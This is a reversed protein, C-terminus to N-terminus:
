EVVIVRILRRTEVYLLLADDQTIPRAHMTDVRIPYLRQFSERISEQRVFFGSFVERWNDKRCIIKEYDTFDAYALLPRAPAGAKEREQKKAVLREHVDRPLRTRYWDAGFMLSMQADIFARLHTELQFLWGHAENTRIFGEEDEPEDAVPVPSGYADALRPPPTDLRALSVCQRFAPVPLATLERDFGRASFFEDRDATDALDALNSAIPDRWDGLDLRLANTLSDGFSPMCALAAGIGQVTAFRSASGVADQCDLWPTRMAAM